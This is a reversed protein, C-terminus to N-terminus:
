PGQGPPSKVQLAAPEVWARLVRASGAPDGDLQVYLPREARIEIKRCRFHRVTTARGTTGDRRRRSLVTGVVAAWGVIGRPGVAVVDLWGDDVQAEPLLRVGVTLEGCNGVIISRVRVAIPPEGDLAVRVRTRRGNLVRMATVVYAWWGVRQKLQPNVSAMVEADFGLGAMVLFTQRQPSEDEGSVDIEARGVDVTRQRHGLAIRLAQDLDSPPVRLNRALLNGTGAPLLGLPVGTNLLQEAVLRATGDGGFSLVVDCGAALAAKAQSSGPDDATTPLWLPPAWGLETMRATVRGPRQDDREIKSYNVVVGARPRSPEAAGTVPVPKPLRRRRAVRVAPYLGVALVLTVVLVTVQTVEGSSM